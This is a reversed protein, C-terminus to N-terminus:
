PRRRNQFSNFFTFVAVFLILVGSILLSLVLGSALASQNLLNGGTPPEGQYDSFDLPQAPEGNTNEVEESVPVVENNSNSSVEETESVVENTSNAELQVGGEAAAGVLGEFNRGTALFSQVNRGENSVVGSFLSEIAGLSVGSVHTMNQPNFVADKFQTPIQQVWGLENYTWHFLSLVEQGDEVELFLQTLHINKQIDAALSLSGVPFGFGSVQVSEEWTDGLDNSSKSWLNPQTQNWESWVIHLRNNRDLEINHSLINNSEFLLNQILMPESWNNDSNVATIPSRTYYFEDRVGGGVSIRNVFIVHLSGDNGLALEPEILIDWPSSNSLISTPDEWTEGDDQSSVAYLGIGNNYPVSYVVHISGDDDIAVDPYSPNNFPAPIAIPESWDLPNFASASSAQSFLIQQNQADQWVIFLKEARPTYAFTINEVTGISDFIKSPASWFGDENRSYYISTAPEVVLPTASYGQSNQAWVTHLFGQNDPQMNASFILHNDASITEAERWVDGSDVIAQLEAVPRSSVWIDDTNGTGCGVAFLLGSGVALQYPCSSSVTRRSFPDQFELLNPQNIPTSWGNEQLFRLEIKTESRTFLALQNNAEFLHYYIPCDSNEETLQEIFEWDAGQDLSRRTYLACDINGHGAIWFTHLMGQFEAAQIKKPGEADPRDSELREDIVFPSSWNQGGDNSQIQSFLTQEKVFDDFVVSIPGSNTTFLDLNTSDKDAQRFFSSIYIPIPTSWTGGNDVSVRYYIGPQISSGNGNTVYAVHIRAQDDVEAAIQVVNSFITVPRSWSELSAINGSFYRSYQLQNEGNTWFASVTQNNNNILVPDYLPIPQSAPLDIEFARTGFPPQAVVPSSWLGEGSLTSVIYGDAENKWFAHLEGSTGEVVIPNSTLGSQSLNQPQPWGLDPQQDDSQASVSNLFVSFCLLFIIPLILKKYNARLLM